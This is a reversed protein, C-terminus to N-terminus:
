RQRTNQREPLLYILVVTLAITLFFVAWQPHEPGLAGSLGSNGGNDPPDADV